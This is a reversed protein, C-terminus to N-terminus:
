DEPVVDIRVATESRVHSRLMTTVDGASVTDYREVMTNVYSPDDKFLTLWAVTDAVGSNRQIEMALSTMLKNVAKGREETSPAYQTAVDMVEAALVDATVDPTTAFAYMTLFSSYQRRDVYAGVSSAIRKDSVLRQYLQSTRGSGLLTAAIEADLLEAEATGPLHFSLFTAPLSVADPQVVHVNTRRWAPDFPNRDAIGHGAAIGGFHEEALEVAREPTIDGAVCLVANSPRYYREYFGRADEMSVAAVHEASGYVEWSYASRPDFAAEDLAFRWRGYPTNEVNQKIEEIVVSRQTELAQDSIMFDRMREAELWFGLPAQHSPLNIYYNTYDYTTYANNSGGAMTCYTDYQKYMGTSTNDFMLHEFLHALGTRERREDHSGVGYAVDVTVNPSAHDPCVVVRLGNALTTRHIDIKPM